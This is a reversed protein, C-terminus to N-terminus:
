SVSLLLGHRLLLWSLWVTTEFCQASALPLNPPNPPFPYTSLCHTSPIRKERREARYVVAVVVPAITSGLPSTWETPTGPSPWCWPRRDTKQSSRTPSPLM